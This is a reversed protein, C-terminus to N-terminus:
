IHILSLLLLHGVVTVGRHDFTVASLESFPKGAARERLLELLQDRPELSAFSTATADAHSGSVGTPRFGSDTM